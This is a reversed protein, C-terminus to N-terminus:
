NYLSIENVEIIFLTSSLCHLILLIGASYSGRYLFDLHEFANDKSQRVRLQHYVGECRQTFNISSWGGIRLMLHIFLSIVAENIVSRFM